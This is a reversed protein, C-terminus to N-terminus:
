RADERKAPFIEFSSEKGEDKASSSKSGRTIKRVIVQKASLSRSLRDEWPWPQRERCCYLNFTVMGFEPYTHLSLHSETLLFLATIGGPSPFQHWVGEGVVHLGLEEIIERCLRFLVGKDALLEGRCGMADVLWEVGVDM